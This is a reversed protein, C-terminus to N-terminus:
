QRNITDQNRQHESELYYIFVNITGKKHTLTALEKACVQPDHEIAEAVEKWNVM